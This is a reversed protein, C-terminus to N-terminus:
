HGIAPNEATTERRETEEDRADGQQTPNALTEGVAGKGARAKGGDPEGEIMASTNM